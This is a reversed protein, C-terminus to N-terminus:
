KFNHVLNTKHVLNSKMNAYKTRNENNGELTYHVCRTLNTGQFYLDRSYIFVSFIKGGGSFVHKKDSPWKRQWSIAFFHLLGQSTIQVFICIYLCSIRTHTHTHTHTHPTVVHTKNLIVNVSILIANCFFLAPIISHNSM